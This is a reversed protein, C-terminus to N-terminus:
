SRFLAYRRFDTTNCLASVARAVECIFQDHKFREPQIWVKGLMIRTVQEDDRQFLNVEAEVGLADLINDWLKDRNDILCECSTMIHDVYDSTSKNCLNCIFVNCNDPVSLLQILIMINKRNNKNRKIVGYLPNPQLQPQVDIFRYAQKKFLCDSWIQQDQANVHDNVIAKWAQKQPFTSGSAYALIYQSLNYRKSVSMLDATISSRDPRPQLVYGYLQQLFVRKIMSDNKLTILQRLFLLKAKHIKSEMTSWGLLGIAIENHTRWNLGQIHKAISRQVKELMQYQVKPISIWNECSFLISPICLRNWLTACTSPSLGTANFGLSTLSGLYSYGRNCREKIMDLTNNFASLNMGLYIANDVEQLPTEGLYLQRTLANKRNKYRSEGFTMCMSKQPSFTIRWKRGYQYINDLMAQLNSLTLSLLLTDDAFTPTSVDIDQWVLSAAPFKIAEKHIDYHSVCFFFMSLLGGQKISRTIPFSESLEGNVMITCTSGELWARLLWWLKGSIGLSSLKYLLGKWWVTDFAQQIDLFAAFIKSGSNTYDMIIEQVMYSLSVSSTGGRGAQQQSPPFNHLSLWPKLRNLVAKELVKNIVPSLSIGRYTM